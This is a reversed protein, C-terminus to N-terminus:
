FKHKELHHTFIMRFISYEYGNRDIGNKYQSIRPRFNSNNSDNLSLLSRYSQLINIRPSTM